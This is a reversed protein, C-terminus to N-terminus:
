GRVMPPAALDGCFDWASASSSLSTTEILSFDLNDGVPFGAAVPAPRVSLATVVGLFLLM